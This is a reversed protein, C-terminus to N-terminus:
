SSRLSEDRVKIWEKTLKEKEEPDDTELIALQLDRMRVEAGQRLPRITDGKGGHTRRRNMM